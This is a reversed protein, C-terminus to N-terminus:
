EDNDTTRRCCSAVELFQKCQTLVVLPFYTVSSGVHHLDVVDFVADRNFLASVIVFYYFGNVPRVLPLFM